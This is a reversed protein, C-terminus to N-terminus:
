PTSFMQSASATVAEWDIWLGNGPEDELVLSGDVITPGRALLRDIPDAGSAPLITEVFSIAPSWGGLQGHLSTFVHPIVSRGAIAAMETAAVAGTVGGSATADVRLVTVGELLDRYEQLDVVDEGVALPTRILAQLEQTLRWQQPTFPDEIFALDIEDLM